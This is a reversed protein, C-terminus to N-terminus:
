RKKTGPALHSLVREWAPVIVLHGTGPV